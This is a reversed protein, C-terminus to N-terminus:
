YQIEDTYTVNCEYLIPTTLWDWLLEFKMQAYNFFPVPNLFENQYVRRFLKTTDTINAILVQTWNELIVYVNISCFANPLEYSINFEEVKKLISMEEGYYRRTELFWSSSYISPDFVWAIYLKNDLAFYLASPTSAMATIPTINPITIWLNSAIPLWEFFKWYYQIAQVNAWLSVAFFAFGNSYNNATIGWSYAFKRKSWVFISPNRHILKKQSWSFVYLQSRLSDFWAIIYDYPWDTLWSRIYVWEVAFVNQPQTWIQNWFYQYSEGKIQFPWSISTYIKIQDQFQWLHKVVENSRFTISQAIVTYANDVRNLFNGAWFYLVTNQYNVVPIWYDIWIPLPIAWVNTLVFTVIDIRWLASDTLIAIMRAWAVAWFEIANYIIFGAPLNAVNIYNVWNNKRIQGTSTFFREAGDNDILIKVITGTVVWVINVVLNPNSWLRVWKPISYINVNEGYDFTGEAWLFIDDSLWWNFTHIPRIGKKTM